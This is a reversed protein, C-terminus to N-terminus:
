AGGGGVLMSLELIAQEQGQLREDQLASYTSLEMVSMQLMANEKKLAESEEKLIEIDSKKEPEPQPEVYPYFGEEPNYCHTLPEVDEPVEGIEHIIANPMGLVFSDTEINGYQTRKFTNTFALIRYDEDIIVYM